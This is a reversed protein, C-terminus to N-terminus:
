WACFYKEMEKIVFDAELNIKDSIFDLMYLKFVGILYQGYNKKLIVKM